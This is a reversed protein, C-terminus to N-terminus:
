NNIYKTIELQKEREAMNSMLRKVCQVPKQQNKCQQM